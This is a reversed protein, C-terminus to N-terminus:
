KVLNPYLFIPQDFSSNFYSMVSQQRQYKRSHGNENVPNTAEFPGLLDLEIDMDAGFRYSSIGHKKLVKEWYKSAAKLSYIKAKDRIRSFPDEVLGVDFYENENYLISNLDFSKVKGGSGCESSVGRPSFFSKNKKRKNKFCLKKGSSNYGKPLVQFIAIKKQGSISVNVPESRSSFIEGEEAVSKEAIGVLIILLSVFICLYKKLYVLRCKIFSAREFCGKLLLGGKRELDHEAM